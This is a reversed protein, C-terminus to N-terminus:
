PSWPERIEHLTYWQDLHDLVVPSLIGNIRAAAEELDEKSGLDFPIFTVRHHCGESRLSYALFIRAGTRRALRLTYGINNDTRIPRGLSPGMVEQNLYEDAFLALCAGKQLVRMAPRAGAAGRPLLVMGYRLRASRAIAHKFRNRPPEYFAHIDLGLHVLAPGITEWNGLHLGLVIVPGVKGAEALAEKGAIDIRNRPILRDLVSLETMARGIHGWLRAVTDQIEMESMEPRLASLAVKTRAVAVKHGRMGMGRGLKDGISSCFDISGLRLGYHVLHDFLGSAVDSVWYRLWIERRHGGAMFDTWAPQLDPRWVRAARKEASKDTM